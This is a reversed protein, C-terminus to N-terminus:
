ALKKSLRMETIFNGSDPPFESPPTTEETDSYGLKLYFDKAKKNNALVSVTATDYGDRLMTTEAEKMLARGYRKRQKKPTVHLININNDNFNVFGIPGRKDEVKLIQAQGTVIDNELVNPLIKTAFSDWIGQPIAGIEVFAQGAAHAIKGLHQGDGPVAKVPTPMSQSQLAKISEVELSRYFADEAHLAPPFNQFEYNTEMNTEM